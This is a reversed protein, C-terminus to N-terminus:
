ETEEAPLDPLPATYTSFMDGLTKNEPLENPKVVAVARGNRVIAVRTCLEEAFNMQHTSLVITNGARQYDLLAEKVREQRTPDLNTLPEDIIILEPTNLFAQTIMVMQKQGRSLDMCQTDLVGGFDLKNSWENIRADLERKPIDRIEGVFEFYERPTLMSPPEEREPLTGVRSRIELPDAEPDFGLVEADGGDRGIQGTIIGITTTKGAGNDGIFGYLEGSEVCLTMEKLAPREGYTKVVDTLNIAAV